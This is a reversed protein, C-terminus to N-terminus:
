DKFFVWRLLFLLGAAIFSILGILQIQGLTLHIHLLNLFKDYGNSGFLEYIVGSGGILFGPIAAIVM